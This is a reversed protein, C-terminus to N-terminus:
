CAASRGFAAFAAHAELDLPDAALAAEYAQRAADANGLKRAVEARALQRRAEAAREPFEALLERRRAEVLPAPV